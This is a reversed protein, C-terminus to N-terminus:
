SRRAAWAPLAAYPTPMDLDTVLGFTAQRATLLHQAADQEAPPVGYVLHGDGPQSGEGTWRQYDVWPGEYTCIGVELERYHPDTPVGPNLVVAPLGSRRAVRVALAVPGAEFRTAPARDFFIGAVPYRAWRDVDDLIDAVPRAAYGLDVYGLMPVGAGALRATAAEYAEDPESGPGDHVNVVVTVGLSLGAAAEWMGPDTLPHTYLPLLTKM